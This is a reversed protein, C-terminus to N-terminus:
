DNNLLKAKLDDLFRGAADIAKQSGDTEVATVVFSAGGVIKELEKAQVVSVNDDPLLDSFNTRIKILSAGYASLATILLAALLTAKPFSLSLRVLRAILRELIDMPTLPLGAYRPGSEDPHREGGSVGM